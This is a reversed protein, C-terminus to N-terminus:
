CIFCVRGVMNRLQRQFARTLLVDATDGTLDVSDMQGGGGCDLLQRSQVDAQAACTVDSSLVTHM